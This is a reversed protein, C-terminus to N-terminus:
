WWCALFLGGWCFYNNLTSFVPSQKRSPDLVFFFFFTCRLWPLRKAAARALWCEQSTQSNQFECVSGVDSCCAAGRGARIFPPSQASPCVALSLAGSCCGRGERRRPFSRLLLVSAAREGGGARARRGGPGGGRRGSRLRDRRGSRRVRGPRSRVVTNAAKSGREGRSRRAVILERVALVSAKATVRRWKALSTLEKAEAEGDAKGPGEGKGLHDGASFVLSFLKPANRTLEKKPGGQLRTPPRAPLRLRGSHGPQVPDSVRHPYLPLFEEVGRGERPEEAFRM